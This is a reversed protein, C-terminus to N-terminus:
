VMTSILCPAVQERRMSVLEIKGIESNCRGDGNGNCVLGGICGPSWQYCCMVSQPEPDAVVKVGLEKGQRQHFTASRGARAPIRTRPGRTIRYGRHKRARSLRCGLERAPHSSRHAHRRPRPSRLSHLVYEIFSRTMDHMDEKAKKKGMLKSGALVTTILM